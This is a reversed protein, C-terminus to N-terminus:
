NFKLDEIHNKLDEITKMSIYPEKTLFELILIQSIDSALKIDKNSINAYVGHAILSRKEYLDKFEKVIRKRNEKNKAVIFAIWESLQSVISPSIFAKQNAQLLGEIAFVFQVLSKAKDKERLAKGTWDISTIIRKELETEAHNILSWIKDTGLESDRFIGNEIDVPLHIDNEMTAGMRGSNTAVIKKINRSNRFNIIEVRHKQSIDGIIFSFVSEITECIRDALEVAKLTDRVKVTIGLVTNSNMRQFYNSWQKFDPYKSNVIDPNLALNYITFDGFHLKESRMM